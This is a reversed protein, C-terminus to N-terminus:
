PTESKKRKPKAFDAVRYLVSRGNGLQELGAVREQVARRSLGTLAAITNIDAIGTGPLIVGDALNGVREAIKKGTKSGAAALVLRGVDAWVAFCDSKPDSM